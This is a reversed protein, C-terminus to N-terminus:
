YFKKMFYDYLQESDLEIGNELATKESYKISPTVIKGDIMSYSHISARQYSLERALTEESLDSFGQKNGYFRGDNGSIACVYYTFYHENQAQDYYYWCGDIKCSNAEFMIDFIETLKEAFSMIENMCEEKASVFNDYNEVDEKEKDSLSTYAAEIEDLKAKSEYSVDGISNIMEEVAQVAESKGCGCLSLCIVFALLIIIVRKM